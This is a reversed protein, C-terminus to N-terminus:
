DIDIIDIHYKKLIPKAVMYVRDPISLRMCQENSNYIKCEVTDGTDRVEIKDVKEFEISYSEEDLVIAVHKTDLEFGYEAKLRNIYNSGGAVIAGILLITIGIKILKNLIVVLGIIALIMCVILLKDQGFAILHGILAEM